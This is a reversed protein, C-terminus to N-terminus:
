ICHGRPQNAALYFQMEIVVPNHTIQTLLNNNFKGPQPCTTLTLAAGAADVIAMDYFSELALRSGEDVASPSIVQQWIVM